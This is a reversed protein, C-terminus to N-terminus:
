WWLRCQKSIIENSFNYLFLEISVSVHLINGSSPSNVLPMHSSQLQVGVHQMPHNSMMIPGRQPSGINGLQMQGHGTRAHHLNLPIGGVNSKSHQLSSSYINLSRSSTEIIERSFLSEM